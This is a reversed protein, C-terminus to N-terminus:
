TFLTFAGENDMDAWNVLYGEVKNIDAWPYTYPPKYKAFFGKENYYTLEEM